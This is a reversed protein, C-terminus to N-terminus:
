PLQDHNRALEPSVLASNEHKLVKWTLHQRDLNKRELGKRVCEMKYNKQGSLNSEELKSDGLEEEDLM